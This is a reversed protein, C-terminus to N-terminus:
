GPTRPGRVPFRELQHRLDSAAKVLAPGVPFNFGHKTWDDGKKAWPPASELAFSVRMTQADILDFQLNPEVFGCYPKAPNGRACAEMWDALRTAEFNTLCPDRFRWERGTLSVSGDVILWNSDWEDNTIEPFQYGAIVLRFWSEDGTLLM